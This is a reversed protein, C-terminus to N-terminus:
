KLFIEVKLFSQVLRLKRGEEKKKWKKNKIIVTLKLSKFFVKLYKVIQASLNKNVNIWEDKISYNKIIVTTKLCLILNKVFQHLCTKGVDVKHCQNEDIWSFTQLIFPKCSIQVFLSKQFTKFIAM